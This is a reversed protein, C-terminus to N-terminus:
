KTIKVLNRDVYILLCKFLKKQVEDATLDKVTNFLKKDDKIWKLLNKQSFIATEGTYFNLLFPHIVKVKREVEKTLFPEGNVPNYASIPIKRLVFEEYEFYCIKGRLRLGAFVATEKKLASKPLRVYPIGDLCIGWIKEIDIEISKQKEGEENKLRLFHIQSMFNQPNSYIGAEVEEWSYNPQNKQFDEITLFVGDHFKFNKSLYVTDTQGHLLVNVFCLFVTIILSSKM